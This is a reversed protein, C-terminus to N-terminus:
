RCSSPFHFLNLREWSRGARGAEELLASALASFAASCTVQLRPEGRKAHALPRQATRVRPSFNELLAVFTVEPPSSAWGQLALSQHVHHVHGRLGRRHTKRSSEAPRHLGCRPLSSPLSAPTLGGSMQRQRRVFRRIGGGEGAGVVIILRCVAAGLEKDLPRFGSFRAPISSSANKKRHNREARNFM